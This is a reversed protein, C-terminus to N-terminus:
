LFIITLNCSFKRTITFDLIRFIYAVQTVCVIFNKLSGTGAHSTTRRNFSPCHSVHARDARCLHFVRSVSNIYHNESRKTTIAVAFTASCTFHAASCNATKSIRDVVLHNTYHSQIALSKQNHIHLQLSVMLAPSFIM